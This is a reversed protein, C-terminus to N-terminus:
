AQVRQVTGAYFNLGHCRAHWAFPRNTQQQSDGSPPSDQAGIPRLLLDSNSFAFFVATQEAREIQAKQRRQKLSRARYRHFVPTAYSHDATMAVHLRSFILQVETTHSAILERRQAANAQILADQKDKM